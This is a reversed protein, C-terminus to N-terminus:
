MGLCIGLIPIERRQAINLLPKLWVGEELARMGEEFAGLWLFVVRQAQYLNDPNSTILEEGGLNRVINAVVSLNCIQLVPITVQYKSLNMQM